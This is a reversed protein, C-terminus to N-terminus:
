LQDFSRAHSIKSMSKFQVGRPVKNGDNGRIIPNALSYLTDVTIISSQSVRGSYDDLQSSISDIQGLFRIDGVPQKVYVAIYKPKRRPSLRVRIGNSILDDLDDPDCSYLLVESNQDFTNLKNRTIRDATLYPRWILIMQHVSQKLYHRDYEYRLDQVYFEIIPTGPKRRRDITDYVLWLNGDTLAWFRIGREACHRFKRTLNGEEKVLAKMNSMSSLHKAEILMVPKQNSMLAYDARFSGLRDGYGPYWHEFKVLNPDATDWGLERLFPDVLRLKTYTETSQIHNQFEKAREQFTCVVDSLNHLSM